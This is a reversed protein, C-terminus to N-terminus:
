RKNVKAVATLCRSVFQSYSLRDLGYPNDLYIQEEVEKPDVSINRDKLINKIVRKYM